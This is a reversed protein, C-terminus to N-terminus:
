RQREVNVVESHECSLHSVSPGRQRLRQWEEIMDTAEPLYKTENGEQQIM